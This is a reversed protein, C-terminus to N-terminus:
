ERVPSDDEKSTTDTHPVFRKEKKEMGDIVTVISSQFSALASELEEARQELYRISENRETVARQTTALKVKTLDYRERLKRIDRAMYQVLATIHIPGSVGYSAVLSAEYGDLKKIDFAGVVVPLEVHLLTDDPVDQIL